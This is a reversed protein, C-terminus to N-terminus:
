LGALTRALFRTGEVRSSLIAAKKERTWRGTAVPEGALHIVSDINELAHEDIQGGRAGGGAQWFIEEGVPKHRALPIGSYGNAALFPTLQSGIHGSTGSLAVRVPPSGPPQSQPDQM